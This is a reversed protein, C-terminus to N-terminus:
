VRLGSAAEGSAVETGPGAGACVSSVIRVLAELLAKCNGTIDVANSREETSCVDHYQIHRGKHM